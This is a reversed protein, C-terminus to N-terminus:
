GETSQVYRSDPPLPLQEPGLDRNNVNWKCYLFTAAGRSSTGEHEARCGDSEYPARHLLTLAAIDDSCGIVLSVVADLQYAARRHLFSIDINCM